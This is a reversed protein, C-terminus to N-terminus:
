LGIGEYTNFDAKNLMRRGDIFVAQPNLQSILEPTRRFEEWRTVLVIANVGSIADELRDCLEVEDPSFVKAAESRSVPDYAKVIAGQAAMKRILPIAPSERMDSTNPRFSLGLMGVRVGRLEPFHFRLRKAIEEPQKVNIDDVAELLRMEMGKKKGQAVFARV